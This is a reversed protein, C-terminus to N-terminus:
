FICYGDHIGINAQRLGEKWRRTPLRYLPSELPSPPLPTHHTGFPQVLNYLARLFRLRLDSKFHDLVPLIKDEDEQFSSKFRPCLSGCPSGPPRNLQKFAGMQTARSTLHLVQWPAKINSISFSWTLQTTDFFVGLRHRM